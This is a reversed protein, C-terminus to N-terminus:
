EVSSLGYLIMLTPYGHKWCSKWRKIGQKYFFRLSLISHQQLSEPMFLQARPKEDRFQHRRHGPVRSLREFDRRERNRLLKGTMNWFRQSGARSRPHTSKMNCESFCLSHVDPTHQFSHPARTWPPSEGQTARM